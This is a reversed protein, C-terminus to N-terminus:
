AIHRKLLSQFCNDHFLSLLQAGKIPQRKPQHAVVEPLRQPQSPQRQFYCRGLNFSVNSTEGFLSSRPHRVPCADIMGQHRLCCSGIWDVRSSADEHQLRCCGSVVSEIRTRAQISCMQVYATPLIMNVIIQIIYTRFISTLLEKWTVIQFTSM